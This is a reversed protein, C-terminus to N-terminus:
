RKVGQGIRRLGILLCGNELHKAGLDFEGPPLEIRREFRGYPIELRRIASRQLERPLPREGHVILTGGEVLVEVRHADVGPLAVLIWYLGAEADEYIDVPPEWRAAAGAGTQHFFQRQLRDADRLLELAQQWMWDRPDRSGFGM